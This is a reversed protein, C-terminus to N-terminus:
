HPFHPLAYVAGTSDRCRRSQPSLVFAGKGLELKVPKPVIGAEGPLAPAASAVPNGTLVGFIGAAAMFQIISKRCMIM